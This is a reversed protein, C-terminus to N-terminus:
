GYAQVDYATSAMLSEDTDGLFDDWLNAEDVTVGSGLDKCADWYTAVAIYRAQPLMAAMYRVDSEGSISAQWQASGVYKLRAGSGAASQILGFARNAVVAYAAQSLRGGQNFNNDAMGNVYNISKGLSPVTGAPFTITMATASSNGNSLAPTWQGGSLFAACHIGSPAGSCVHYDGEVARNYM